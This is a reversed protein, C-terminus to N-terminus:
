EMLDDTSGVQVICEGMCDICGAVCYHVRHGTRNGLNASNFGWRVFDVNVKGIQESILGHRSDRWARRNAKKRSEQKCLVDPSEQLLLVSLNCSGSLCLIYTGIDQVEFSPYFVTLIQAAPFKYYM